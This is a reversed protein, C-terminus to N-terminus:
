MIYLYFVNFIYQRRKPRTTLAHEQYTCPIEGSLERIKWTNNINKNKNKEM